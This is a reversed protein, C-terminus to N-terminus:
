FLQLASTYDDLQYQTIGLSYYSDATREHEEGFLKRRVDLTPQSSQLSFTYDGLQFRTVALSHYSDDKGETNKELCNEELM